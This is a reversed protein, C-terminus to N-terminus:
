FLALSKDITNFVGYALPILVIAWLVILRGTAPDVHEEGAMASAERDVRDPQDTHYTKAKAM